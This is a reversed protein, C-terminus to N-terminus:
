KGKTKTINDVLVLTMMTELLGITALICAKEIIYGISHQVKLILIM